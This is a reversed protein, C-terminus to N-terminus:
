YLRYGRNRSLQDPYESAVQRTGANMPIDHYRPRTFGVRPVLNIESDLVSSASATNTTRALDSAFSRHSDIVSQDLGLVAIDSQWTSNEMDLGNLEDNIGPQYLGDYDPGAPNVFTESAAAATDDNSVEFEYPDTKAIFKGGFAKNIFNFSTGFTKTRCEKYNFRAEDKEPLKTYMDMCADSAHSYAHISYILVVVLIIIAVIVIGIIIQKRLPTKKIPDADPM